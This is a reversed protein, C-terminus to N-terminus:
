TEDANVFPLQTIQADVPGDPTQVVVTAGLEIKRARLIALGIVSDLRPSYAASTLTGISQDGNIVGSPVAPIVDTQLTLGCLDRNVHGRHLIRVITEQGLYCGKETSITEALGVELPFREETAEYGYIPLGSEIRAADMADTGAPTAGTDICGKWLGVASERAVILAWTPEGTLKIRVATIDGETRHNWLVDPAPINLDRLIKSANPGTIGIVAHDPAHIEVDDAILYTDLHTTVADRRNADVLMTISDSRQMVIGDGVMKGQVTLVGSRCGEGVSLKKVDNSLMNHLFETRDDGTFDLVGYWPLDIIAVGSRIAAYERSLDGYSAPAAIGYRTSMQAGAAPLIDNLPSTSQTTM